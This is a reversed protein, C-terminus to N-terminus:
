KGTFKTHDTKVTLVFLFWPYFIMDSFMAGKGDPSSLGSFSCGRSTPPMAPWRRLLKRSRMSRRSSSFDLRDSSMFSTYPSAFDTPKSTFIM